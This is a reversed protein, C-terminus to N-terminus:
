WLTPPAPAGLNDATLTWAGLSKSASGIMPESVGLSLVRLAPTEPTKSRFHSAPVRPPKEPFLTDVGPLRPPCTSIEQSLCKGASQDSVRYPEQSSSSFTRSGACRGPM